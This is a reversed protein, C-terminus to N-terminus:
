SRACRGSRWGSRRWSGREVVGRAAAPELHEAFHYPQKAWKEDGKEVLDIRRRDLVHLGGGAAGLVVLAAWGSHSKLGLVAKM